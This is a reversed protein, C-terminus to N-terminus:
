KNKQLEKLLAMSKETVDAIDFSHWEKKIEDYRMEFDKVAASKKETKKLHALANKISDMLKLAKAARTPKAHCLSCTQDLDAATLVTTAMAGHCTLCNPGKGSRELMKYHVSTKFQELEQSHCKGCTNPINQFYISANKDRSSLVGQHAKVPDSTAADGGHCSECTVGKAAHISQKWDSYNHELKQTQKQGQHCKVCSSTSAACVSFASFLFVALVAASSLVKALIKQM